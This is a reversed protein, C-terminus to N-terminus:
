VGYCLSLHERILQSVLEPAEITPFHNVGDMVKLKSHKILSHLEEGFAMPSVVDDRGQAVLVPAKIQAYQQQSIAHNLFAKGNAILAHSPWKTAEYGIKESVNFPRFFEFAGSPKQMSRIIVEETLGVLSFQPGDVNGAFYAIGAVKEPYKLAFSTVVNSGMSHTAFVAPKDIGAADLVSKLDEVHQSILYSESTYPKESRGYGRRDFSLVQFDKSLNSIQSEWIDSVGFYGSVLVVPLGNGEVNYFIEVGDNAIVYSM